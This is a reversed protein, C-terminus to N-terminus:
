RPTLTLASVAAHAAERQDRNTAPQRGHTPRLLDSKDLSEQYESLAHADGQAAADVVGQPNDGSLADKLTMWCPAVAAAVRGSEEADDGYSEACPRGYRVDRSGPAM